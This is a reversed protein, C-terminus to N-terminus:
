GLFEERPATIASKLIEDLTPHAFMFRHLEEKSFGELVLLQAATILHAAGHGIAAMGVLRDDVWVAKAFGASAAYAQAIPNVSFPAKSVFVKGSTSLAEKASKGARMIETRGFVCAPVPGSVYSGSVEGLIRRAVWEGQHEAAHALLTLGNVDGIAYANPAAQLHEDVQAYGRSDLAGGLAEVGLGETNARRGVAILAKQATLTQGDALRLEAQGECSTVSDVKQGTLCTRGEKQLIKRLEEAIDADETPVLQPMGEVVTVQSGMAAFFDSFEIGIAGAGIVLLSQPIEQLGLLMTSDLVADGDPTLGPFSASHSGTAVIIDRAHLVASDGGDVKVQGPAVCVGKGSFLSIGLSQLSKTLAQVSGKVFREKRKQLAAFDVAIEGSVSGFRKHGQLLGLPATAALLFKTPICGVNLCTGGLHTDEVLAVKKGAEALTRASATGGPGGGLIIVDFSQEM